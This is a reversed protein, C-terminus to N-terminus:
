RSITMRANVGNKEQNASDLKATLGSSKTAALLKDVAELSAAKLELVLNGSTDNFDMSLPQIKAEPLSASVLSVKQLLPLFPKGSSGSGATKLRSEMRSKVNISRNESALAEKIQQDQPFAELYLEASKDWLDRAQQQFAIGEGVMLGMELMLWLSAVLAIPKWRKLRRNARRLCQYAGSRLDILSTVKKRDAFYHGALYEFVSEDLPQQEVLWGQEELWSNVKEKVEPDVASADDSYYLKVSTIAPPSEEPVESTNILDPEAVQNLQGLVFHLAEYDLNSAAQGPTKVIVTHNELIIILEGPGNQIFQMESLVSHPSLGQNDFIVLLSQLLQHSVGSVLAIERDNKLQCALHLADVDEALDEEIMFPLATNIHKKQGSNIPLERHLTMSGPLLLVVQDPLYDEVVYEGAESDNIDKAALWDQRIGGVESIHMDRQLEGSASYEAWHAITAADVDTTTPPIRILLISKM